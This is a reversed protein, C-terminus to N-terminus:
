NVSPPPPLLDKAKQLFDPDLNEVEQSDAKPELKFDSYVKKLNNIKYRYLTFVMDPKDSVKTLYKGDLEKGVTVTKELGNLFLFSIKFVPSNFGHPDSSDVKVTDNTDAKYWSDTKFPGYNTLYENLKAGDAPGTETGSVQWQGSDDKKIKLVVTETTKKKGPKDNNDNEKVYEMSLSILTVSDVTFVGKDRWNYETTLLEYKITEDSAYVEPHNTLRIFQNNYDSTNKGVYFSGISKASKDSLEVLVGKASDVEMSAHSEPNTGQLNLTNLNDIKKLVKNIKATDAPYNDESAVVWGAGNHKLVVSDKANVIKFRGVKNLSYETLFKHEKADPPKDSANKVLIIIVIVAGLVLLGLLTQGLKM